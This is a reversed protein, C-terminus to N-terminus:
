RHRFFFFVRRACAVTAKRSFTQLDRMGKWSSFAPGHQQLHRLDPLSQRVLVRVGARRQEPRDLALLRDHLLLLLNLGLVVVLVVLRCSHPHTGGRQRLGCRSDPATPEARGRSPVQAVSADRPGLEEQIGLMLANVRTWLGGFVPTFARLSASHTPILTEFARPHPRLGTEPTDRFLNMRARLRGHQPVVPPMSATARVRGAIHETVPEFHARYIGHRPEKAVAAAIRPSLVDAAVRDAGNHGRRKELKGFGAAVVKRRRHRFEAKAAELGAVTPAEACGTPLFSELGALRRAHHQAGRM